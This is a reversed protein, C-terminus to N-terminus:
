PPDAAVATLLQRAEPAAPRRDQILRTLARTLAAREEISMSKISRELVDRASASNLIRAVLLSTWRANDLGPLARVLAYVYVEDPLQELVHVLQMSVEPAGTDDDLAGVLRGFHSHVDRPEAQALAVLFDDVDSQTQLGSTRVVEDVWGSRM